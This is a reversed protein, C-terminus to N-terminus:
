LEIELGTVIRYIERTLYIDYEADHLKDEDVEIGIEKAVRVLKFSPMNARRDKLYQAALIRVDLAEGYFWSGFFTDGNQEFWKRLHPDDFKANNFGVLFIKEKPNYRDVYKGLMILMKKYVKEMPEYAMIQELTVKGVALAEPEIVAKPFPKVKFDFKEVVEDNVEICGSIHHIGHKGEELGTTELDYFMKVIKNMNTLSYLNPNAELYNNMYKVVNPELSQVDIFNQYLRIYPLGDEYIINNIRSYSGSPELFM